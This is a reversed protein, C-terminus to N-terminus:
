VLLGCGMGAGDNRGFGMIGFPQVGLFPTFTKAIMFASRCSVFTIGSVIGTRTRSQINKANRWAPLVASVKRVAVRILGGSADQISCFGCRPRGDVAVARRVPHCTLLEPIM